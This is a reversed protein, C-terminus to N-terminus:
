RRKRRHAPQGAPFRARTSNCAAVRSARCLRWADLLLGDSVDIAARASLPRDAGAVARRETAARIFPPPGTQFAFPRIKGTSFLLDGPRAGTRRCVDRAGVEGIITLSVVTDQPATALDGGILSVGHKEGLKLLGKFFRNLWREDHLPGLSSAVLCFLPKGGMAAIDSLNRALLKRGVQEPTAALPGEALYHRKEVIQDVALLLIKGGVLAYGAGTTGRRSSSNGPPSPLRAFLAQLFADETM